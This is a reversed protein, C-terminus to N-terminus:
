VSTKKFCRRLLEETHLKMLGINSLWNEWSKSSFKIKHEDDWFRGVMGWREVGFRENRTVIGAWSGSKRWPSGTTGRWRFAPTSHLRWAHHRLQKAYGRDGLGQVQPSPHPLMECCVRKMNKMKLYIKNIRIIYQSISCGLSDLISYFTIKILRNKPVHKYVIIYTCIWRGEMVVHNPFAGDM